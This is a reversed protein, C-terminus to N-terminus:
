LVHHYTEDLELNVVAVCTNFVRYEKTFPKKRDAKHLILRHQECFPSYYFNSLSSDEIFLWIEPFNKAGIINRRRKMTENSIFNWCRDDCEIILM